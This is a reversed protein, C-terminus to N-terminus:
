GGLENGLARRVGGATRGDLILGGHRRRWRGTRAVDLGAATMSAMALTRHHLAGRQRGFLRGCGTRQEQMRRGATTRVVPMPMRHGHVFRPRVIAACMRAAITTRRLRTAGTSHTITILARIRSSPVHQRPLFRDLLVFRMGSTTAPLITHVCLNVMSKLANQFGFIAGFWRLIHRGGLQGVYEATSAASGCRQDRPRRAQVRPRHLGIQRGAVSWWLDSPTLAGSPQGM